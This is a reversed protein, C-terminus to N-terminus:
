WFDGIVESNGLEIIEKFEPYCFVSTYLGENRFSEKREQGGRDHEGPKRGIEPLM